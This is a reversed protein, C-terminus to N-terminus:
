MCSHGILYNSMTNNQRRLSYTGVLPVNYERRENKITRMESALINLAVNFNTNLELECSMCGFKAKSKRNDKPIAGCESCKQSTYKPDIEYVVASEELFQKLKYWQSDLIVRNLGSKQKVNKGPDDVTGKASKTLNKAKLDELIVVDSHSTLIYAGLIWAM